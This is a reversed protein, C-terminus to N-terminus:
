EVRRAKWTRALPSGSCFISGACICFCARKGASYRGRLARREGGRTAGPGCAVSRKPSMRQTEELPRCSPAARRGRLISSDLRCRFVAHALRRRAGRRCSNRKKPAIIVGERRSGGTRRHARRAPVRGACKELLIPSKLVANVNKSLARSPNRSRARQLQRVRRRRRLAIPGVIV